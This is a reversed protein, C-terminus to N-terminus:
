LFMNKVEAENVWVCAGEVQPVKNIKRDQAFRTDTM